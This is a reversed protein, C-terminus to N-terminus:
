AAIKSKDLAQKRIKWYAFPYKRGCRPCEWAGKTPDVDSGHFMEVVLHCDLCMTPKSYIREPTTKRRM